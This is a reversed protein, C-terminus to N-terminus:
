YSDSVELSSIETLRLVDQRAPRSRVILLLSEQLLVVDADTVPYRDGSNMVIVFPLLPDRSTLRQIEEKM